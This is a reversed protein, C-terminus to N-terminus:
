CTYTGVIVSEFNNLYKIVIGSFFSDSRYGDWNKALSLMDSVCSRPSTFEDLDIWEGKYVVFHHVPFEETDIYDFESHFEVPMEYGYKVDRPVNNTKIIIDAM